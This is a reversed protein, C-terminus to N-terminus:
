VPCFPSGITSKIISIVKRNAVIYKTLVFCSTLNTIKEHVNYRVDTILCLISLLVSPTNDCFLNRHEQLAEIAAKRSICDDMPEGEKQGRVINIMTLVCKLLGHAIIDTRGSVIRAISSKQSHPHFGCSTM